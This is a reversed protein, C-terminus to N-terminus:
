IQMTTQEGLYAAEQAEAIRRRLNKRRFETKEEEVQKNFADFDVCRIYVMGYREERIIHHELEWKVISSPYKMALDQNADVAESKQEGQDLEQDPYM